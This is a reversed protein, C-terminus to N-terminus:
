VALLRMSFIPSWAALASCDARKPQHRLTSDFTVTRHASILPCSFLKVNPRAQRAFFFAEYEQDELANPSSRISVLSLSM